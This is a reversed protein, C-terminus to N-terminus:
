ALVMFAKACPTCSGERSSMSGPLFCSLYKVKGPRVFGVQKGDAFGSEDQIKVVPWSNPLTIMYDVPKRILSRM